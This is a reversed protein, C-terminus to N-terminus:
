RRAVNAPPMKAAGVTGRRDGGRIEAELAAQERLCRDIEAKIQSVTPEGSPKPVVLKAERSPRLDTLAMMGSLGYKLVLRASTKDGQRAQETLKRSIAVVDEETIARVFAAHLRAMHQELTRQTEGNMTTPDAM